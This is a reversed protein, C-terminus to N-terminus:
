WKCSLMFTVTECWNSTVTSLMCKNIVRHDFANMNINKLDYLDIRKFILGHGM